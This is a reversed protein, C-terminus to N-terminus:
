RKSGWPGKDDDAAATQRASGGVGIGSDGSAPLYINSNLWIASGNVSTTPVKTSELCLRIAPDTTLSHLKVVGEMSSGLRSARDIIRVFHDSNRTTASNRTQHPLLNSYHYSYHWIYRSQNDMANYMVDKGKYTEFYYKLKNLMTLLILIRSICWGQGSTEYCQMLRQSARGRAIWRRGYLLDTTKM